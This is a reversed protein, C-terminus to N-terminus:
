AVHPLVRSLLWEGAGDAVPAEGAFVVGGRVLAEVIRGGGEGAVGAALAKGAPLVEQGVLVDVPIIDAGASDAPGLVLPLLGELPVEFVLVLRWRSGRAYAKNCVCVHLCM